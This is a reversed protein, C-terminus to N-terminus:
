PSVESKGVAGTGSPKRPKEGPVEQRQSTLAGQNLLVLAAGGAGRWMQRGAVYRNKLSQKFTM